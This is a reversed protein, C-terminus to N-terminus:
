CVKWRARTDYRLDPPMWAAPPWSSYDLYAFVGGWTEFLEVLRRMSVYRRAPSSCASASKPWAGRAAGSRPRPDGGAPAHVRRGGGHRPAANM